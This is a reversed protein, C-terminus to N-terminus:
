KDRGDAIILRQQEDFFLWNLNRKYVPVYTSGLLPQNIISFSKFYINFIWKWQSVPLPIEKHDSPSTSSPQITEQSALTKLWFASMRDVGLFM